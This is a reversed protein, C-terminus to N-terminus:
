RWRRCAKRSNSAEVVPTAGMLADGIGAWQPRQRRRDDVQVLDGVQAYPPALAQALDEVFVLMGGSTCPHLKRCSRVAGAAGLRGKGLGGALPTMPVLQPVLHKIRV